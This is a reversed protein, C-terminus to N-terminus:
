RLVEWTTRQLRLIYRVFGLFLATNMALIYYPLGAPGLSVRQRDALFGGLGALLFAAECALVVTFFLSSAALVVTAALAFLALFPVFWRIIKHSWLAFAIFGAKPLLLPAIEGIGAFNQAGIRAKRSFEGKMSGSTKETAIADRAYTVRYGRMVIRLPILFDDTVPKGLPLPEFLSRRIAYVGGTAGLLSHIASENRKLWSEYAWYSVEGSGSADSGEPVLVLEGCVAGVAPDAFMRVLKRVTAPHYMTNADSFIVIEGTASAVLDNLVPAKGRRAPFTLVSKNPRPWSALLRNTGDTSGDSGLLFRIRDAPYDVAEMNRLKEPLVADENFFSVVLSIEPLYGDDGRPLPAAATKAILGVILPYVFYSYVVSLLSCWFVIAAITLLIDM